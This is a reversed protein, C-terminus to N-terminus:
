GSRRADGLVPLGRRSSRLPSFGDSIIGIRLLTERPIDVGLKGAPTRIIDHLFNHHLKDLELPELARGCSNHAGLLDGISAGIGCLILRVEVNRTALNKILEAFLVKDQEGKIRDFEDIVIVTRGKRSTGVLSFVDLAEALTTSKALAATGAEEFNAGISAGAYGLTLGIKRKQTLRGQTKAAENAIAQIVDAFSNYISCPVYIHKHDGCNNLAAATRAVSTKGIGRDGFIFINRGHSNFARAIRKLHPERGLLHDPSDIEKSPFLHAAIVEGLQVENVNRIPM